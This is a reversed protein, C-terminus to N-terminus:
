IDFCCLGIIAGGGKVGDDLFGGSLVCTHSTWPNGPLCLYIPPLNLSFCSFGLYFPTLGCVALIAEFSKQM